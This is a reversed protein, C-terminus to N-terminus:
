GLRTAGPVVFSLFIEAGAPALTRGFNTGRARNGIQYGRGEPVASQRGVKTPARLAVDKYLAGVLLCGQASTSNHLEDVLPAAAQIDM